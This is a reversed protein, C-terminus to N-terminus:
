GYGIFRSVNRSIQIVDELAKRQEDGYFDEQKGTFMRLILVIKNGKSLMM